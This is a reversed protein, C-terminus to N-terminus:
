LFRKVIEIAEERSLNPNEFWADTVASLIEGIRKGNQVGMSIIDNGNIPLNPKKVQVNLAALRKRINEVQNPMASADAHSINDAHILDLISELNDGVELKFKRLTKDSIKVADDGGHKLRMHNRVGMKVANIIEIPYKLNRMVQEAVDEGVDEHGIFQVGTPSESRTALKGIDHFLGMLRNVLEPKTKSLVDLTHNFVDSHHHKNQIMGVMQQLEPSVYQLIGLERMKDVAGHPNSTVLMKNLEDRVREMSINKLQSANKKISEATEPDIKWGKQFSQRIGRLMRLPDERFIIEPDSTTKIIGNKIAQIGHGTLDIIKETTLDMVLSNSLFDRRLIDDELTGSVVEPKRSGPTYVEKRSAVAEVDMGDLQVGNHFGTLVVKATGFNEFTVPNSKFKYNGMQQALWSAFKIGGDIGDGVVVVDLDKPTTSMIIDRVAGGALYVKGRFPGSQVMKKLYDLSAEDKTSAEMLLMNEKIPKQTYCSVYRVVFGRKKLYDKVIKSDDDSPDEYWNLFEMDPVYRWKNGTLWNWPHKALEDRGDIAKVNGDPELMGLIVEPSSGLKEGLRTLTSESLLQKLKIM